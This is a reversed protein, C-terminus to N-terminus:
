FLPENLIAGGLSFILLNRSGFESRIQKVNNVNAKNIYRTFDSDSANPM